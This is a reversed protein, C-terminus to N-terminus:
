NYKSTNTREFLTIVYKFYYNINVHFSEVLRACAQKFTCDVSHIEAEGVVLRPQRNLESDALCHSSSSIFFYSSYVFRFFALHHTVPRWLGCFFVVLANSSQTRSTFLYIFNYHSVTVNLRLPPTSVFTQFGESHNYLFMFHLANRSLVVPSSRSLLFVESIRSKIQFTELYYLRFPHTGLM